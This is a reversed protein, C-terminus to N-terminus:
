RRRGLGTADEYSPPADEQEAAERGSKAKAQPESQARGQRTAAVFSPPAGDQEAMESRRQAKAQAESQAQGRRKGFSGGTPGRKRFCRSEAEIYNMAVAYRGFVRTRHESDQGPNYAHRKVYAEAESITARYFAFRRGEPWIERSFCEPCYNRRVSNSLGWTPYHRRLFLCDNYKLAHQEASDIHWAGSCYELMYDPVDIIEDLPRLTQSM